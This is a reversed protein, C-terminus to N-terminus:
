SRQKEQLDTQLKAIVGRKRECQQCIKRRRKGRPEESSEGQTKRQKSFYDLVTKEYVVSFYVPRCRKKLVTKKGDKSVTYDEESFDM